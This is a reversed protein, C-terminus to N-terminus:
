NPKVEQLIERISNKITKNKEKNYVQQIKIKTLKDPHKIKNLGILKCDFNDSKELLYVGIRNNLYIKRDSESFFTVEM